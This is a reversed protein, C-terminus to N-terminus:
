IFVSSVTIVPNAKISNATPEESLLLSEFFLLLAVSFLLMLFVGTVGALFHTPSWFQMAFTLLLKEDVPFCISLSCYSPSPVNPM